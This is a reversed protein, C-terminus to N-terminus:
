HLIMVTVCFVSYFYDPYRLETTCPSSNTFMDRSSPHRALVSTVSSLCKTFINRKRVLSCVPDVVCVYCGQIGSSIWPSFNILVDGISSCIGATEIGTKLSCISWYKARVFSRVCMDDAIGTHQYAPQRDSFKKSRYPSHKKYQPLGPHAVGFNSDCSKYYHM